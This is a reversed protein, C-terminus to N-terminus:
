FGSMVKLKFVLESDFAQRLASLNLQKSGRKLLPMNVEFDVLAKV